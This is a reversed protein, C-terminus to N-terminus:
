KPRVRIYNGILVDINDDVGELLQKLEKVTM